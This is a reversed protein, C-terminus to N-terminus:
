GAEAEHADGDMGGRFGHETQAGGLRGAHRKRMQKLM